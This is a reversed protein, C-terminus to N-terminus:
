VAVAATKMTCSPVPLRGQGIVRFSSIAAGADMVLEVPDVDDNAILVTAEQRRGATFQTRSQGLMKLHREQYRKV